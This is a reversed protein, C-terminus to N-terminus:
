EARLTVAPDVRTARRSPFYAAALAALVVTGVGGVFAIRDFTDVIDVGAAIIRSVGLALIVGIGAGRAVLKLSQWLIAGTVAARGAGLAMRIGIEKTRQSVLYTLVGYMGSITLLLAIAGLIRAVVSVIRFPMLTQNALEEMPVFQWASRPAVSEVAASFPKRASEATGRIRILFQLTATQPDVPFYMGNADLRDYIWGGIADGAVGIVRATRQPLGNGQVSMSQGVPDQGPWLRKAASESVIVVGSSPGTEQKSFTRGRKLPIGLVQFYEPSVYNYEATLQNRSGSPLVAAQPVGLWLPGRVATAIQEVWPEASLRDAIQARERVSVTGDSGVAAAGSAYIVRNLQMGTNREALDRSGRLLVGATVLFLVCITVQSVVLGNRLRAPRDTGMGGKVTTMLDARTAHLAPALGFLMASIAAAACAFGLVRLDPDLSPLHVLSSFTPAHIAALFLQPGFRAVAFALAFGVAAGPLSLLLSETLLQRILRQRGAGLSLRVGIERQRSLARALMMNAVNACAMLLVLGFIALMATFGAALEFTLPISTARSELSFRFPKQDSPLDAAHGGIYSELAASAARTSVQPQLRGVVTLEDRGADSFLDVPTFQRGMTIPAWFDPGYDKVSTSEIGKFDTRMVGIVQFPYGRLMIKRGLIQPDGAFRNMWISHSLVVVPNADRVATDDPLVTRGILPEAGLSSFYNGTVLRGQSPRGDLFSFTRSSAILESFIRNDGRLHEMEPWSFGQRGDAKTRWQFEYLNYPNRVAFPRLVYANFITFLSCCVGIGLGITTAIGCAFLPARRYARLAYRTDQLLSALWAFSWQARSDEAHLTRNGFRRRAELDAEEQPLGSLRLKQARLDAHLQMEEELEAAMQEQRGFFQLRKWLNGLM